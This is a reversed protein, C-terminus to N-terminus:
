SNLAVSDSHGIKNTSVSESGPIIFYLLCGIDVIEVEWVHALTYINAIKLLLHFLDQKIM